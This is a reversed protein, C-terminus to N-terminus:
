FRLQRLPEGGLLPRMGLGLDLEPGFVLMAEPQNRDQAHEPRQASLARDARHPPAILPGVDDGEDTGLLPRGGKPEDRLQIRGDELQQEVGEGFFLPRTPSFANQQDQVLGAPVQLRGHLHGLSDGQNRERGVRGFQLGRLMQPRQDVLGYRIADKLGQALQLSGQSRPDAHEAVSDLLDARGSQEV